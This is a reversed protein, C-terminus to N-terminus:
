DTKKLAQEMQYRLQDRQVQLTAAATMRYLGRLYALDGDTISATVAPCTPTLLNVISPLTECRDIADPQSLGLVAM